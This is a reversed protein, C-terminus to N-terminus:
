QEILTIEGIVPAAESLPQGQPAITLTPQEGLQRNSQLNKAVQTVDFSYFKQNMSEQTMNGGGSHTSHGLGDFFNLTGVYYSNWQEPPTEAPLDFYVHYLVGPQVQASLKKLVLYLKHGTAVSSQVRTTFPVEQQPSVLPSQLTARVPQSGLSLGTSLVAQVRQSAAAARLAPLSVPCAPVQELSDYTYNLKGIDLFDQITAVVRNGNEDAFIFQKALFAPDNPNARGAKNWSAWLRDINSHHMWFIPDRAAWPVSGMNQNNGILVHVTGHLGSDLEQCFGQQAGQLSYDCQALASLNLVNGPQGQDIPRGQNVISNRNPIFLSGFTADNQRRFQPPMVGHLGPDSTSYNWYPLTFSAVGSVSRIIREFFYVYMRHWPLFFNEDEGAHSQCTSWVDQALARNPDNQNPYIRAIEATKTSSGIVSHTYWQFLWSKPDGPDRAATDLMTRVARAYTTLMAQGMPSRADYRMFLTQAAAYQQFWASFPILASGAIFLRRSFNTM